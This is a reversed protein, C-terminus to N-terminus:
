AANARGSLTTSIGIFIALQGLYYAYWVLLGHGTDGNILLGGMRLVLLTDSLVFLLAGLGTWHRPFRSIWAAAAMACLLVAYMTLQDTPESAPMVLSPMVFGFVLLAACFLVDPLLIRQRRNRLYFIIAIVHGVAFAAGGAVLNGPIEILMDGIKVSKM